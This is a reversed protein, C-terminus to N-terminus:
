EGGQSVPPAKGPVTNPELSWQPLTLVVSRATAIGDAGSSQCSKPLTVDGRPPRVPIGSTGVLRLTPPRFTLRDGSDM